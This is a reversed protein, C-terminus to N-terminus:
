YSLVMVILTSFRNVKEDDDTYDFYVQCLLSFVIVDVDLDNLAMVWINFSLYITVPILFVVLGVIQDATSLNSQQNDLSM